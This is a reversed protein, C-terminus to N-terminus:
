SSNPELQIMIKEINTKISFAAGGLDSWLTYPIHTGADNVIRRIRLQEPIHVFLTLVQSGTIHLWFKSISCPNGKKL